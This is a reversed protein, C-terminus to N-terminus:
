SEPYGIFVQLSGNLSTTISLIAREWMNLQEARLIVYRKARERESNGASRRSYTLQRSVEWLQYGLMPGCTCSILALVFYIWISIRSLTSYDLPLVLCRCLTTKSWFGWIYGSM